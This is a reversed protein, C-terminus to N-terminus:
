YKNRIVECRPEISPIEVDDWTVDFGLVEVRFFRIYATSRRALILKTNQYYFNIEDGVGIPGPCEKKSGAVEANGENSARALWLRSISNDQMSHSSISLLFDEKEAPKDKKAFKDKEAAGGRIRIHNRDSNEVVYILRLKDLKKMVEENSAKVEMKLQAQFKDQEDKTRNELEQTIRVYGDVLMESQSKAAAASLSAENARAAANRLESDVQTRYVQVQELTSALKGSDYYANRLTTALGQQIAQFEAKQNDAFTKSTKSQELIVDIAKKSVELQEKLEKSDKALDAKEENLKRRMDELQSKADDKTREMM